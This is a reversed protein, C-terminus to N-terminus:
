LTDDRFAAPEVVLRGSAILDVLQRGGAGKGKAAEALTRSTDFYV